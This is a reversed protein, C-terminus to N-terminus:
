SIARTLAPRWPTLSDLLTLGMAAGEYAFGRLEPEIGELEAAVREPKGQELATHYGGLFTKGVQDLRRRM